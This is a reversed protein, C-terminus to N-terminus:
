KQTVVSDLKYEGETVKIMSVAKIPNNNEDFKISGTIGEFDINKMADIIAQSDTSGAEEIAQKVM